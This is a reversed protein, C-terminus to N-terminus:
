RAGGTAEGPLTEPLNLAARLRKTTALMEAENVLKLHTGPANDQLFKQLKGYTPESLKDSATLFPRGRPAMAAANLQKIAAQLQAVLRKQEAELKAAANQSADWAKLARRWTDGTWGKVEVAHYISGDVAILEFDIITGGELVVQRGTLRYGPFLQQAARETVMEGAIGRLLARAELQRKRIGPEEAARKFLKWATKKDRALFNFDDPALTTSRLWGLDVSLTAAKQALVSLAEADLGPHRVLWEADKLFGVPDKIV